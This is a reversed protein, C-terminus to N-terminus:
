TTEQILKFRALTQGDVDVQEQFMELPRVWMSYDGYLCQYVVLQERTESHTAVHFVQYLQGKYHQYIGKKLM